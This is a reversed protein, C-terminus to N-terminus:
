QAHTFFRKIGRQLAPGENKPIPQLFRKLVDVCTKAENSIPNSIDEGRKLYQEAEKISLSSSMTDTVEISHLSAYMHGTVVINSALFAEKIATQLRGLTGEPSKSLTDYEHESLGIRTVAADPNQDCVQLEYIM